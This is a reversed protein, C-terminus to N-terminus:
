STLPEDATAAHSATHSVTSNATAQTDTSSAASLPDISSETAAQSEDEPAGDDFVHLFDLIENYMMVKWE